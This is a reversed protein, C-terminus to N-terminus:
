VKDGKWFVKTPKTDKLKHYAQWNVDGWMYNGEEDKFTTRLYDKIPYDQLMRYEYAHLEKETEPTRVVSDCKESVYDYTLCPINFCHGGEALIKAVFGIDDGHRDFREVDRNIGMKYLSKINMFTVQRPTPGCDIIYKLRANNKDQCMRQRRINGLVVAPHKKFVQRAIFSAGLLVKQQLLPDEQADPVLSHKSCLDGKATVGNFLYTLIKIDDDMDIIMPYKHKVAYEFIFQRTSALGNVPYDRLSIIDFEPNAEKYAAYQEPRVVIHIKQQVEPEFTRFLKGSVFNPRMYSPCFIHPMDAVDLHNLFKQMRAKEM